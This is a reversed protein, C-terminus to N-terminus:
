AKWRGIIRCIERVANPFVRAALLKSVSERKISCRAFVVLDRTNGPLLPPSCGRKRHGCTRSLPFREFPIPLASQDRLAAPAQNDAVVRSVADRDPPVPPPPPPMNGGGVGPPACFAARAPQHREARSFSHQRHKSPLLAALDTKDAGRASLSEEGREPSSVRRRSILSVLTIGFLPSRSRSLDRLRRRAPEIM